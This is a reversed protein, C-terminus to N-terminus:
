SRPPTRFREPVAGWSTFEGFDSRLMRFNLPAHELCRLRNNGCHFVDGVTDPAGKLSTLHNNNCYFGGGVTRPAHELSTLHNDYCDFNGRVIHPAKELTTLQDSYCCFNGRVAQPAGELSTLQNNACSFNGGVSQPAGNLSTLHNNSCSFRGKVIVSSLDPLKTLNKYSLDIDGLVVLTGDPQREFACGLEQLTAEIPNAPAGSPPPQNDDL